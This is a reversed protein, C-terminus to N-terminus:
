LSYATIITYSGQYVLWPKNTLVDAVACHRSADLLEASYSLLSGGIRECFLEADNKTKKHRYVTLTSYSESFSSGTNSFFNL